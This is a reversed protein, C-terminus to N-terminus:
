NSIEKRTTDLFSIKSDDGQLRNYALKIACTRIIQSATDIALKAQKIDITGERIQNYVTTLDDLLDSINKVETM